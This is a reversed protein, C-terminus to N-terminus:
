LNLSLQYNPQAYMKGYTRRMLNDGKDHKFHCAQCLAALNEERDDYNNHNLHAVTLIVKEYKYVPHPLYNIAGCHKCQNKDREFRIYKSVKRFEKNYQLKYNIAM